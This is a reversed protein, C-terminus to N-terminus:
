SLSISCVSSHTKESTSASSVGDMRTVHLSLFCLYIVGPFHFRTKQTTGLPSPTLRFKPWHSVSSSMGPLFIQGGRTWTCLSRGLATGGQLRCLPGEIGVSLVQRSRLTRGTHHSGRSYSGRTEPVKERTVRVRVTKPKSRELLTLAKIM